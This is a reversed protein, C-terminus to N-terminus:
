AVGRVVDSQKLLDFGIIGAPVNVDDGVIEGAMVTSLRPSPHSLMRAEMVDENRRSRAPEVQLFAPPAEETTIRKSSLAKGIRALDLLSGADGGSLEIMSSLGPDPSPRGLIMAVIPTDKTVPNLSRLVLMLSAWSVHLFQQLM